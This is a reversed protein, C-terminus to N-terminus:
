FSDALFRAKAPFLASLSDERDRLEVDPRLAAEGPTMGGVAMLALVSQPLILDPEGETRRVGDEKVEFIGNNAEILPDSVEIRVSVGAPKRLLALLKEANVTRIMHDWSVEKEAEYPSALFPALELDTPLPLVVTKYDASFRALFGLLAQFGSRAAFALDEVRLEAGEARWIDRFTVYATPEDGEGLLYSFRRTELDSGELHELAMAEDRKLSLNLRASFAEYLALFPAVPDGKQWRRAWGAFDHGRLARPPLVYKNRYCVTEYGFKRYFGHDFPYLTSIVDGAAFAAPLLAGFIARIAGSERYEPLTSVAGIGNSPADSGDFHTTYENRIIRAMLVGDESFAGWDDWTKKESEVRKEELSSNPVRVHFAFDSICEAAFRESGSLRRVLM